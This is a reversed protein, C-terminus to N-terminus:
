GSITKWALKLMDKKPMEMMQTAIFDMDLDEVELNKVLADIQDNDLRQYARRIWLGKSIEDGLVEKWKEEYGSLDYDETKLANSIVDAAIKCATSSYLLGGGTIPKVQGCADGVLLGRKFHSKTTGVPIVGGYESMVEADRGRMFRQYYLSPNDTTALGYEVKISRPIKWAFFDPSFLKNFYINFCRSRTREKVYAFRGYYMKDPVGLGLQTRVLSGPGDAGVLIKAKYSDKGTKVSVRSDVDVSKVRERVIACSESAKKDLHSDLKVRDLVLANFNVDLSHGSPSIIKASSIKREIISKPVELQNLFKKSVVGSCQLIPKKHEELILVDLGARGLMDGLYLGSFSGGVIAVDHM